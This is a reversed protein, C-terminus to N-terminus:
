EARTERRSDADRNPIAVLSLFVTMTLRSFRLELSESAGGETLDGRAARKASAVETYEGMSLFDGKASVGVTVM